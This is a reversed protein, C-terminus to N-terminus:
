RSISLFVRAGDGRSFNDGILRLKSLACKWSTVNVGSFFVLLSRRYSRVMPEVGLHRPRDCDQSQKEAFIRRLLERQRAKACLQRATARALAAAKRVRQQALISGAISGAGRFGEPREKLEIRCLDCVNGDGFNSLLVLKLLQSPYTV